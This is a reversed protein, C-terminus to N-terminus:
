PLILSNRSLMLVVTHLWGRLCVKMAAQIMGVDMAEVALAWMALGRRATTCSHLLRCM